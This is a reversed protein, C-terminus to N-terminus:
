EDDGVRGSAVLDITGLFAGAGMAELDGVMSRLVFMDAQIGFHKEDHILGIAHFIELELRALLALM